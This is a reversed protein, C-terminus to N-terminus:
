QGGNSPEKRQAHRAMAVCGWASGIVTSINRCTSCGRTSFVHPDSAYIELAAKPVMVPLASELRAVRAELDDM